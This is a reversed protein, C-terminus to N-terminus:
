ALILELDNNAGTQIFSLLNPMKELYENGDTVVRTGDQVELYFKLEAKQEPTLEFSQIVFPPGQRKVWTLTLPKTDATGEEVSNLSARMLEKFGDPAAGGQFESKWAAYGGLFDQLSDILVRIKDQNVDRVEPPMNLEKHFVNKFGKATLDKAPDFEPSTLVDPTYYGVSKLAEVPKEAANNRVLLSGFGEAAIILHDKHIRILMQNEPTVLTIGNETAQTSQLEMLGLYKSLIAPQGNRGTLDPLWKEFSEAVAGIRAWNKVTGADADKINVADPQRFSSHLFTDFITDQMCEHPSFRPRKAPPNGAAFQVHSQNPRFTSKLASFSLM